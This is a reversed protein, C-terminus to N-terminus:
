RISGFSNPLSEAAGNLSNMRECGNELTRWCESTKPESNYKTNMQNNLSYTTQEFFNLEEYYFILYKIIIWLLTMSHLHNVLLTHLNQSWSSMVPYFFYLFFFPNTSLLVIGFYLNVYHYYIIVLGVFLLCLVTQVNKCFTTCYM